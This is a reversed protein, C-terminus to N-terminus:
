PVSLAYKQADRAGDGAALREDLTRRNAVGTLRERAGAPETATM